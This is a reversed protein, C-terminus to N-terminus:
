HVRFAATMRRKEWSFVMRGGTEGAEMSITFQEVHQGTAETSLPIRALDQTPDYLTGWQGTQKNVILTDGLATPITWLTYSGAPVSHNGIMLGRTTTFHTAQNAGTRWVQGLVVLGGFVTRGRAKPRGYDILLQSGGIDARATDRPSAIGVAGMSIFRAALREMDIGSVRRTRTQVTTLRADILQLRGERDLYVLPTQGPGNILQITDGAFRVMPVTGSGQAGFVFISADVSDRHARRWQHAMEEVIATSNSIFPLAGRGSALKGTANADVQGNRRIDNIVTDGVILAKRELLPPLSDPQGGARGILNLARANGQADFDLTYRVVIARPVPTLIEGELRTQTRSYREIAITDRGLTTVFMGSRIPQQALAPAALAVAWLAGIMSKM